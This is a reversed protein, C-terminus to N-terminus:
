PAGDSRYIHGLGSASVPAFGNKELLDLGKQTVARALFLSVGKRRGEAVREELHAMVVARDM